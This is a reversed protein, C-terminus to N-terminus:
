RPSTHCVYIPTGQSEKTVLYPLGLFNMGQEGFVSLHLSYLLIGAGVGLVGGLVIEGPSECGSYIRGGVVALVLCIAFIMAVTKRSAWVPGMADLTESFTLMSRSLYAVVGMTSFMAFSPYSDHSFLRRFDMRGIKYGMRCAASPEKGKEPPPAGVSQAMVWGVLKHSLILELVFLAFVGFPAHQTLVYLLFSGFLLSDPMMSHIETTVKAVSGGLESMIMSIGEM